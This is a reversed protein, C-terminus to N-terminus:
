ERVLETCIGKKRAELAQRLVQGYNNENYTLRLVEKKPKDFLHQGYLASVLIDIPIMFGIAASDKGFCSLLRDYRGGSAVAEGVGYTFAKFIVGTYYHYKSLLSLDVSVYSDMGYLKLLNLLDILRRIAAKSRENDTSLLVAKLEEESEMFESTKLFLKQNELSIGAETLLQEAAFYNKGSIMDRLQEETKGDLGADECLGKFYEANGVSIQFESLGVSKLSDILLALMEADGQVSDDGILEAGMQTSENLRGQLVSRNSFASGSYCFRLPQTEEAFYKAACRAVSPTFDPRLVLTNGEKDFFKYLEKSSTTGIGSAFVDFFEFVPTKIDEYGYLMFQRHIQETYKLYGAYERGYTDRVGEPTHLLETHKNM